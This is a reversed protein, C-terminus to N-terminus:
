AVLEAQKVRSQNPLKVSASDSQTEIPIDEIHVTIGRNAFSALPLKKGNGFLLEDDRNDGTEVFTVTEIADIGHLRQTVEPITHLTLIAGGKVCAVRQATTTGRPHLAGLGHNSEGIRYFEGKRAQIVSHAMISSKCMGM